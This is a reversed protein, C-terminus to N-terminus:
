KRTFKAIQAAPKVLPNIGSTSGTQGAPYDAVFRMETPLLISAKESFVQMGQDETPHSVGPGVKFDKYASNSRHIGDLVSKEHMEGKKILIESGPEVDAAYTQNQPYGQSSGQWLKEQYHGIMLRGAEITCNDITLNTGPSPELGVLNNAGVIVDGDYIDVDVNPYVRRNEESSDKLFLNTITTHDGATVGAGFRVTHHGASDNGSGARIQPYIYANTFTGSIAIDRPRITADVSLNPVTNSPALFYTSSNIVENAGDGLVIHETVNFTGNDSPHLSNPTDDLAFLKKDSGARYNGFADGGYSFIGFTGGQIYIIHDGGGEGAYVDCESRILTTVCNYGFSSNDTEEGGPSDSFMGTHVKLGSLADGGTGYEVSGFTATTRGIGLNRLMGREWITAGVRGAPDSFMGIGDARGYDPAVVIGTMKGSTYGGAGTWEGNFKGGVLCPSLPIEYTIGYLNNVKHFIAMDGGGPVRDAPVFHFPGTSSAGTEGTQGFVQKFWNEKKNWQIADINATNGAIIIETLHSAFTEGSAGYNGKWWFTGNSM